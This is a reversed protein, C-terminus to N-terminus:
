SRKRAVADPWWDVNAAPYGRSDTWIYVWGACDPDDADAIRVREYDNDEGIGLFGELEDLAPLGAPAVEMWMGRVFRAQVRDGGHERDGSTEGAEDLLLAPYEGADVLFGRVRGERAALLYPAVVGHNSQGPLLSGYVFVRIPLAGNTPRMSM